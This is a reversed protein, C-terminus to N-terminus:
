KKCKLQQQSTIAYPQEATDTDLISFWPLVVRDAFHYCARAPFSAFANTSLEKYLLPSFRQICSRTDFATGDLAFTNYSLMPVIPLIDLSTQSILDRLRGLASLSEKKHLVASLSEIANILAFHTKDTKNREFFLRLASKFLPDSTQWRYNQCDHLMKWVWAAVLRHNGDSVCGEENVILPAIRGAALNELEQMLRAPLCKETARLTYLPAAAVDVWHGCYFGSAVVNLSQRLTCYSVFEELEFWVEISQHSKLYEIALSLSQREYVLPSSTLSWAKRIEKFKQRVTIESIFLPQQFELPEISEELVIQAVLQMRRDAVLEKWDLGSPEQECNAPFQLTEIPRILGSSSFLEYRKHSTNQIELVQKFIPTRGPFLVPADATQGALFQLRPLYVNNWVDKVGNDSNSYRFVRHSQTSELVVSKQQAYLADDAM